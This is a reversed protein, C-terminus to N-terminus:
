WRYHIVLNHRSKELSMAVAEVAVLEYREGEVWSESWALFGQSTMRSECQWSPYDVSPQWLRVAHM